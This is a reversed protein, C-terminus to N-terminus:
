DNSYREFRLWKLAIFCISIALNGGLYTETRKLHTGSNTKVKDGVTGPATIERVKKDEWNAHKMTNAVHHALQSQEKSVLLDTIVQM